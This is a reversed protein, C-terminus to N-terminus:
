HKRRKKKQRTQPTRKAKEKEEYNKVEEKVEESIVELEEVDEKDFAMPCGPDYEGAKWDAIFEKLKDIYQPFPHTQEAYYIGMMMKEDVENDWGSIHYSGHNDYEWLSLYLVIGDFEENAKQLNEFDRYTLGQGKYKERIEEITKGGTKLRCKIVKPIYGM